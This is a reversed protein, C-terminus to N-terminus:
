CHHYITHIPSNLYVTPFIHSKPNCLIKPNCINIPMIFQSRHNAHSSQPEKSNQNSYNFIVKKNYINSNHSMRSNNNTTDITNIHSLRNDPLIYQKIFSMKEIPISITSRDMSGESKIRVM